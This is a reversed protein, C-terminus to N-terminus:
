QLSVVWPSYSDVCITKTKGKVALLAAKLEGVQASRIGEEEAEVATETNLIARYRCKGDM